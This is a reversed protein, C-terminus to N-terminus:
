PYGYFGEPMRSWFTGNPWVIRDNQLIGELGLRRGDSWSPIWIHDGQVTGWASTGNENTFLTRGNPRQQSIQAPKTPDGNLYWTGMLYPSAIRPAAMWPAFPWGHYQAAVPAPVLCLTVLFAALTRMTNAQREAQPASVNVHLPHALCFRKIPMFKRTVAVPRLKLKM